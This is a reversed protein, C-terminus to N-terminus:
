DELVDDCAANVLYCIVGGLAIMCMGTLSTKIQSSFDATECMCVIFGFMILLISAFQIIGLVVNKM